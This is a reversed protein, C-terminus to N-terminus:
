FYKAIAELSHDCKHHQVKLSCKLPKYYMCYIRIISCRQTGNQYCHNSIKTTWQEFCFTATALMRCTYIGSLVSPQMGHVVTKMESCMYSRKFYSFNCAYIGKSPSLFLKQMLSNCNRFPLLQEKLRYYMTIQKTFTICTWMMLIVQLFCINLM